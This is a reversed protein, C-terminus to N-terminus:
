MDIFGGDPIQGISALHVEQRGNTQRRLVSSALYVVKRLRNLSGLPSIFSDQKPIIGKAVTQWPHKEEDWPTGAYDIPQEKMNACFQVQFFYEAEHNSYFEKLWDSLIHDPHSEPKVTEEHSKQTYEGFRYATQPYDLHKNPPQDRAKQLETDNRVDLHKYLEKKDRGYKHFVKMGLGHPQPIRNDLGPKGPELFSQALHPPLEGVILRGKVIGQTKARTGGYMHIHNNFQAKQIANIMDAVAQNYETERPLFERSM